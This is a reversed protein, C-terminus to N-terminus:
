MYMVVYVISYVGCKFLGRRKKSKGKGQDADSQKYNKMQELILPHLSARLPRLAPLKFLNPNKALADVVKLCSALDENDFGLDSSLTNATSDVTLGVKPDSRITLSGGSGSAQKMGAVNNNSATTDICDVDSDSDDSQLAAFANKRKSM